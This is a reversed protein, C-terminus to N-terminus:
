VSHDNRSGDAFLSKGNECAEELINGHTGAELLHQDIGMRMQFTWAEITVAGGHQLARPSGSDHVDKGDAATGTGTREVARNANGLLVIPDIGADPDVWVLGLQRSFGVVGFQLRQGAM